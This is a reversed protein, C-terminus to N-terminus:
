MCYIHDASLIGIGLHVEPRTQIQAAVARRGAGSVPGSVIGNNKAKAKAKSENIDTRVSMGPQPNTSILADDWILLL